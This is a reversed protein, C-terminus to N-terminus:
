SLEGLRESYIWCGGRIVVRREDEHITRCFHDEGLRETKTRVGGTLVRHIIDKENKVTTVGQHFGGGISVQRSREEEKEEKGM